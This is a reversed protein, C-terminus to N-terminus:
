VLGHISSRNATEATEKTMKKSVSFFVGVGSSSRVIKSFLHNETLMKQANVDNTAM